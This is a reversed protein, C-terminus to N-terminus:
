TKIKILCNKSQTKICFRVFIAIFVFNKGKGIVIVEVVKFIHYTYGKM